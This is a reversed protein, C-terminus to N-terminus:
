YGIACGDKRPDSGGILVDNDHDLAIIQGGGHPMTTRTIRHGCQQLGIDTLLPMSEEVELTGDDSWFIRPSDLAEQPDRGFDLMDVLVHAHGVAQYAGGMVGFSYLTKGDKRAMAPVITHLPRKGGDVCNPHGEIMNFCAGRNQLAVGTKETVIASGFGRYVSNIFSVCRREEDVVSLYVTDSQKPVHDAIVDNRQDPRIDKAFRLAFDKSILDSVSETMFDPDAIHRDRLAYAVRSAEIELHHREWGEPDLNGLDFQELINLLILATIGQGNPPLEAIEVGRYTSYVPDVSLCDVAALDDLSLLGGAARVTAVIDEAVEGTYFGEMAGKEAFRRFTKGLAPVAHRAGCAPASGNNLYHKAAGPHRSLREELGRWDEAVRPAVVYGGEALDIARAMVRDLGFRGHKEVLTQWALASGPVTIAHVSDEGMDSVSLARLKELTGAQASRGSGNLGHITGDPETVIAFCDGAIGTMHPEVVALVASAAVAADVANGGAKLIDIATRSAEPHSTAAMGNLAYVPSRGPGHFDRM